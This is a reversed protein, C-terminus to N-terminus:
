SAKKPVKREELIKAVEAETPIAPSRRDLEFKVSEKTLPHLIPPAAMLAKHIKYAIVPDDTEFQGKADAQAVKMGEKDADTHDLSAYALHKKDMKRVTSNTTLEITEDNFADLMARATKNQM